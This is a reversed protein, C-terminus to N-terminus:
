YIHVLPFQSIIDEILQAHEIQITIATFYDDNIGSTIYYM